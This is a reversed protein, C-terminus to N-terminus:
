FNLHMGATVFLQNALESRITKVAKKYTLDVDINLKSMLVASVQQKIGVQKNWGANDYYGLSNGLRITSTIPYSYSSESSFMSTNFLYDKNNSRNLLLTLSLPNKNVTMTSSHMVLVATSKYNEELLMPINMVQRSVTINNMLKKGWARVTYAGDAQLRSNNGKNTGEAFLKSNYATHQWSLGIRYNRNIRYNVQLKNNLAKNTYLKAPDFDRKSYDINYRLTLQKNMKRAVGFGVKSEGSRLLVNGPNNYGLGVKKVFVHVDTSLIEGNYDVMAAYNSKGANGLLSSYPNAKYAQSDASINNIYSGFSKSVDLKVAHKPAVEFDSHFSIVGDRRQPMAMYASQLPKDSNGLQSFDKFDFFNVTLYQQSASGTGTGFKFGTVSSYENTVGSTLGSQLWNNTNNNRGYIFGVSAKKNQFETNIGSNVVNQLSFDGDKVANQGLNLKKMNMFIRQLPGLEMHEDVLKELNTPDKLFTKYNDKTFPLNSKLQKVQKNNEFKEKSALIKQYVKELMALKGEHAENGAAISDKMAPSAANVENIIRSKLVSQDTKSLDTIGDPLQVATKYKEKYDNQLDAIENKLAKEYNAKIANIRNMTLATLTEPDLKEAAKQQITQLYKKQDFNFQLLKNFSTYDTSYVGNMGKFALNVPLDFLSVGGSLNYSYVSGLSKLAGLEMGSTDRLYTYDISANVKGPQVFKGDDFLAIKSALQQRMAMPEAVLGMLEKKGSRLEKLPLTTDTVPWHMKDKIGSLERRAEGTVKSAISDAGPLKGEQSYAPVAVFSIFFLTCVIAIVQRISMANM